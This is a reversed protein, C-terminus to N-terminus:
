DPKNPVVSCFPFNGGVMEADGAPASAAMERQRHASLSLRSIGLGFIRDVAFAALHLGDSAEKWWGIEEVPALISFIADTIPGSFFKGRSKARAIGGGFSPLFEAM